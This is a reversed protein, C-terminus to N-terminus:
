ATTVASTTSGAPVVAPCNVPDGGNLASIVLWLSSVFLIGGLTWLIFKVVGSRKESRRTVLLTLGGLLLSVFAIYPMLGTLSGVWDTVHTQNLLDVGKCNPPFPNTAALAPVAGVLLMVIVALAATVGRGITGFKLALLYGVGKYYYQVFTNM